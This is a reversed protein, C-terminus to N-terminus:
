GILRKEDAYYVYQESGLSDTAKVCDDKFPEISDELLFERWSRCIDKIPKQNESLSYSIPTTDKITCRYRKGFIDVWCNSYIKTTISDRPLMSGIFIGIKM